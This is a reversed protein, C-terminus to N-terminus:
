MRNFSAGLLEGMRKTGDGSQMGSYNKQVTLESDNLVLAATKIDGGPAKLISTAAIHRFAHSGIGDCRWLYKKTLYSLRKSYEMYPRHETPTQKRKERGKRARPTSNPDRTRALLVYNTPFRMLVARYKFLYRELDARVSEHVPSDYDDIQEGKRNKLLQKPVFIWWSGDTRQYLACKNSPRHGEKNDPTWELCAINRKRLPNSCCLKVLFIDRAWIAELTECTTPRDARMRQVM